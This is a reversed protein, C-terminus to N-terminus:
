LPISALLVFLLMTKDHASLLSANNNRLYSGAAFLLLLFFVLWILLYVQQHLMVTAKNNVSGFYVAIVYFTTETSGLITAAIAAISSDAGYREVIDVLIAISGSGSIPRMFSLPLIEPPFDISKLLPSAATALIDFFGSAQLMGVAVYMGVIFPIIKVAVDFGHKGGEIFSEFIPIRKILGILPIGIIILALMLSSVIQTSM